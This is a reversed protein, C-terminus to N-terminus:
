KFNERDSSACHKPDTRWNAEWDGDTLTGGSLRTVMAEAFVRNTYCWAFYRDGRKIYYIPQGKKVAKTGRKAHYDRQAPLEVLHTM